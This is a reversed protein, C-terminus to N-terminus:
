GSNQHRRLIELLSFETSFRRIDELGQAAAASGNATVEAHWTALNQQLIEILTEPTKSKLIELHGVAIELSQQVGAVFDIELQLEPPHLVSVDCLNRISAYSTETAREAPPTVSQAAPAESLAPPAPNRDIASNIKM